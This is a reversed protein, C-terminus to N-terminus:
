RSVYKGYKGKRYDLYGQLMMKLKQYRNKEFLAIMIIDSRLSVFFQLFYAPFHKKYQKYVFFKNRTSYYRRIAPHNSTSVIRWIFRHSTIDGLSHNLVARNARVTKFGMIALRLCYEEDVFDIFLDELFPGIHKYARLSLLNGSTMTTLVEECPNTGASLEVCRYIHLPSVLAVLDINLENAGLCDLMTKIMGSTVKSDQDMTLLYDYGDQIAREAAINLAKAIGVNDGNPMYIVNPLLALKQARDSSLTESNDIAYIVEVDNAYLLINDVFNDAPNYLIVTAAIKFSFEM